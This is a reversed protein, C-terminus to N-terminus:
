RAIVQGYVAEVERSNPKPFGNYILIYMSKGKGSWTGENTVELDLNSGVKHFQKAKKELSTFLFSAGAKRKPTTTTYDTTSNAAPTAQSLLM